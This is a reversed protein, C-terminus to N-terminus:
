TSPKTSITLHAAQQLHLLGRRYLQWSLLGAALNGLLVGIYLGSMGAWIAGLWIAPLYCVFLRLVSIWVARLPLGLANCVSVMLMCVGLAAYSMPVWLMYSMLYAETQSDPALTPALVGRSALWFVAVFVQLGIVFRVAINVLSRVRALQQAGLLRGVMPPLAMTLALVIVISFFELRSGLTWAAIAAGGFGAVLRTALLAAAGPMLQSLMAPISINVIDRLAARIPLKSPEFALWHRKIIRAYMIVSGVMCAVVTAYAAGPLGWGFTFIFLPDLLVNIVSTVVMMLGPLRTDGHARSISNAFYLFAGLWASALWPLWYSETYPLLEVDAGLAALLPIRLLWILACLVLSVCCGVIVVLGGLQKAREPKGAGIARSILATSAIGIGIQVGILLQQMPLTFGLAALPQMGLMSIFVSDVLQFSMLAVVGFLMPWTMSFLARSLSQDALYTASM